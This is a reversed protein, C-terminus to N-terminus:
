RWSRVGGIVLVMLIGLILVSLIRKMPIMEEM